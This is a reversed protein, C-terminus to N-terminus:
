LDLCAPQQIFTMKQLNSIFITHKKCNQLRGRRQQRSFSSTGLVLLPIEVVVVDSSDDRFMDGITDELQGWNVPSRQSESHDRKGDISLHWWSVAYGVDSVQM